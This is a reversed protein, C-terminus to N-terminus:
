TRTVRRQGLEGQETPLKRRLFFWHQGSPGIRLGIGSITENWLDYNKDRPKAVRVSQGITSRATM